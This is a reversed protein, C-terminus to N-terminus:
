KCSVTNIAHSINQQFIERGITPNYGAKKILHLALNRLIAAIHPADKTRITSRDELFVNDKVWHLKNEIGWHNRNLELLHEPTTSSEPLSTIFCTSEISTKGTSKITRQRTIRGVQMLGPWKIRCHATSIVELKREEIRGHGM